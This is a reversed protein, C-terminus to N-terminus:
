RSIGKRLHYIRAIREMEARSEEYHTNTRQIARATQTRVQRLDWWHCFWSWAACAIFALVALVVAGLLVNGALMLVLHGYRELFAGIFGLVIAGLFMWTLIAM